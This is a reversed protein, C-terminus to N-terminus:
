YGVENSSDESCSSLYAWEEFDVGNVRHNATRLKEFLM